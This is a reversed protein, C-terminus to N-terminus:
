SVRLSVTGGHPKFPREPWWAPALGCIQENKGRVEQLLPRCYHSVSTGRPPSQHGPGCPAGHVAPSGTSSLLSPSPRSPGGRSGQVEWNHSNRGRPQTLLTKRVACPLPSPVGTRNTPDCGLRGKGLSGQCQNASRPSPKWTRGGYVGSPDQPPVCVCVCVAAKHRESPRPWRHVGLDRLPRPRLHTLVQTHIGGPTLTTFITRPDVDPGQPQLCLATPLPRPPLPTELEM